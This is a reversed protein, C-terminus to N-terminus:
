KQIFLALFARYQYTDKTTFYEGPQHLVDDFTIIDGTQPTYRAIEKHSRLLCSRPEYFAVYNKALDGVQYYYIVTYCPGYEDSDQHIDLNHKYSTNLIMQVRKHELHITADKELRYGHIKAAQQCLEQLFANPLDELTHQKYRPIQLVEDVPPVYKSTLKTYPLRGRNKLAKYDSDM